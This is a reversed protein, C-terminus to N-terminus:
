PAMWDTAVVSAAACSRSLAALRHTTRSNPRARPRIAGPPGWSVGRAAHLPVPASAAPAAAAAPTAAAPPASAPAVPPVPTGAPVPPPVPTGDPGPPGPPGSNVGPIAPPGCAPIAPVGAGRPDDPDLSSVRLVTPTAAAM